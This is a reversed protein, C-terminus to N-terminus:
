RTTKQKSDNYSVILEEYVSTFLDIGNMDTLSSYVEGNNLVSTDILIDSGGTSNTDSTENGETESVEDDDFFIYSKPM